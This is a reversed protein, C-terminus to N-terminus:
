GSIEPLAFRMEAAEADIEGDEANFVTEVCLDGLLVCLDSLM